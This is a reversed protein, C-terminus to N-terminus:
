IIGDLFKAKFRDQSDFDMSPTYIREIEDHVSKTESLYKIANETLTNIQGEALEFYGSNYNVGSKDCFEDIDTDAGNKCTIFAVDSDLDMIHQIRDPLLPDRYVECRAGNFKAIDLVTEM